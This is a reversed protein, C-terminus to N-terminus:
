FHRGPVDPRDSKLNEQSIAFFHNCLSLSIPWKSLRPHFVKQLRTIGRLKDNVACGVACLRQFTVSFVSSNGGFERIELDTVGIPAECRCRHLASFLPSQLISNLRTYLFRRKKWTLRILIEGTLTSKTNRGKLHPRKIHKAKILNFEGNLRMQQLASRMQARREANIRWWSRVRTAAAGTIFTPAGHRDESSSPLNLNIQTREAILASAM